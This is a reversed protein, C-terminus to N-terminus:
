QAYVFGPSVTFTVPEPGSSPFQSGVFANLKYVFLSSNGIHLAPMNTSLDLCGSIFLRSYLYIMAEFFFGSSVLQSFKMPLLFM